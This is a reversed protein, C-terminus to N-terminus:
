QFQGSISGGVTTGWLNCMEGADVDNMFRLTANSKNEIFCSYRLTDNAKFMVIGSKAGDHVGDIPPNMTLSDYNYTVSEVWDHSDYILEDNLWAALRPTWQNRKGFLQIIRGGDSFKAQYSLTKNQGPPLNLGLAGILSVSGTRQTIKSEDTFYLNVWMERLQAKNTFNYAHIGVCASSNAAIMRGIGVNEPAAIGQPPNDYIPNQGGGFGGGGSFASSGCGTDPYFGDHAGADGAM